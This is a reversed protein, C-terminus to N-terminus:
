KARRNWAKITEEVVWDFGHRLKENGELFEGTSAFCNKCEVRAILPGLFKWLKPEGGCFPCLESIETM